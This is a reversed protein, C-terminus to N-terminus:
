QLRFCTGSRCLNRIIAEEYNEKKIHNHLKNYVQVRVFTFVRLHIKLSTEQPPLTLRLNV